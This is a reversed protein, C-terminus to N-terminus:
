SAPHGAQAEDDGHRFSPAASGDSWVPVLVFFIAFPQEHGDASFVPVGPLNAGLAGPGRRPLFFMLHPFPHKSLVDGLYGQRSMMYVMAGPEPPTIRKHAVAARTRRDIESMSAGALVWRTRELYTPLVSRAAAPNYCAPQRVRVNWFENDTLDTAWSRDVMCVFGNDGKRALEYGSRGLTMLDAHSSISRPAATLALAMEDAKTDALFPALSAPREGAPYDAAAAPGPLAASALAAGLAAFRIWSGM